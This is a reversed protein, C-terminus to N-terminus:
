ITSGTCREIKPIMNDVLLCGMCPVLLVVKKGRHYLFLLVPKESKFLDEAIAEMQKRKKEERISEAVDENKCESEQYPHKSFPIFIAFSNQSPAKAKRFRKFNAVGGNSSSSVPLSMVSDRVILDQSYIIDLKGNERQDTIDEKVVTNDSKVGLRRIYGGERDHITADDHTIHGGDHKIHKTSSPSTDRMSVKDRPMGIQVTCKDENHYEVSELKHISTTGKSDHESSEISCFAAAIHDSKTSETEADSDAVVTEDTSCSSTILVPPSTILIPDLYGSLVASVLDIESVWPLSSQNSFSKFNNSGAPVVCVVRDNGNKESVMESSSINAGEVELLSQLRGEFKYKNEPELLFAYGKLCCERSQPDVLQVSVGELMLKPAHSSHSPIDTCINKGAILEVWSYQVLPKRAVIADILDDSLPFSDDVLVHSCDLSWKKTISAGISSIKKTILQNTKSHKPSCIFFVFSVYSFRYTANGTGFSVLDGDKLMTEKNPFEHVKEKSDLNKNLFTGYKSCDRVRVKSLINSPKKSQDFSIMEDVLIEAHIRSVGKDKNVIVDCGKRGVKYTGKNFFYYSDERPFGESYPFFGRFM